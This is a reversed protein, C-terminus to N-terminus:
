FIFDCRGVGHAGFGMREGSGGRASEEEREWEGVAGARSYSDRVLGAMKESRNIRFSKFEGPILM